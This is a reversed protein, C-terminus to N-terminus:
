LWDPNGNLYARGDMWGKGAPQLEILQLAGASTGITPYGQVLCFEGPICQVDPLPLVKRLKIKVDGKLFYAGPWDYFARVKLALQAAPQNFDLLGDEKHLMSAYTALSEDQPTPMREGSLIGPLTNMLLDAGIYSLREELSAATDEERIIERQRTYVPGTDIGPDLKMISVGTFIDGSLIAAQIPAAGRWRPLYSAHVNICGFPALELVNRRLIQGFAAVVIVDPQWATLQEFVGSEKMREPQIVPIGMELAAEKVPPSTLKRGRGAPRDPQTVVGVMRYKEALRGFVPIAFQPSGMFIIRATSETM